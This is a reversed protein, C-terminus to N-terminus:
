QSLRPGLCEICIVNIQDRCPLAPTSFWTQRIEVVSHEKSMFMRMKSLFFLAQPSSTAVYVLLSECPGAAWPKKSRFGWTQKSM